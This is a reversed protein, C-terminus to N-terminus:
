RDPRRSGRPRDSPRECREAATYLARDTKAMGRLPDPDHLLGLRSETANRHMKIASLLERREDRAEQMATLTRDAIERISDIWAAQDGGIVPAGRILELSREAMQARDPM